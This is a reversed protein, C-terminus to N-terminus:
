QRLDVPQKVDLVEMYYDQTQRLMEQVSFDQWRKTGSDICSQTLDPNQLLSCCSKALEEPQGPPVLLGDQSHRIVEPIGGVATAILPLHAQMAELLVLGMGENVSPLIFIDMAPLARYAEPLYGTFTHPLELAEAKEILAGRLPGDGIILTHIHPFQPRLIQAADLLTHLGKTPHLRAISGLVLADQPIEWIRRFNERLEARQEDSALQPLPPIGNYITRIRQAGRRAVEEALAESVTIVGSTFPLTLRDLALALFAARPSLYDQKLSSHVTSVVPINLRRGALRGLLNARSGHTHILSFGGRRIQAILRPLPSFDLAHKMPFRLTPINKEETYQAFPGDILCGSTLSFTSRDMGQLLTLVHQEAGGIEGGGILQLIKYTPM